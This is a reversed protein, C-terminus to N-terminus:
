SYVGYYNRMTGMVMAEALDLGADNAVLKTYPVQKDVLLLKIQKHIEAAEEETQNRGIPDYAHERELLFSLNNYQEWTWELLEHFCPPYHSSYISSMLLPSDSIVVDCQRALRDIKARQKALIYLQDGMEHQRGAWVMDKAYEPVIECNVGQKKLRYFLGAAMTSKGTSPAAWFNVVLGATM